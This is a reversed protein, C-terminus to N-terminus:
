SSKLLLESVKRQIEDVDFPKTIYEEAGVELGKNIDEEATNGSIFAVPLHSLKPHNKLLECLEYGSVWPLNVDLIILDPITEEIIKSFEMGNQALLVKYEEKEFIRKIANRVVPEDDVVLITKPDMNKSAERFESLNVVKTSAVKKRNLEAVKKSFSNGNIKKSM